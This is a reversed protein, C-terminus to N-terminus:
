YGTPNQSLARSETSELIQILSFIIFHLPINVACFILNEILSKKLFLLLGTRQLLLKTLVLSAWLHKGLFTKLKLLVTVHPHKRFCKVLLLTSLGESTVMLHVCLRCQVHVLSENCKPSGMIKRYSM